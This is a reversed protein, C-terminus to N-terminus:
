YLIFETLRTELRETIPSFLVQYGSKVCSLATGNCEGYLEKLYTLQFLVSLYEAFIYEVGADHSAMTKFDTSLSVGGRSESTSAFCSVSM